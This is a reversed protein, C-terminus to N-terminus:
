SRWEPTLVRACAIDQREIGGQGLWRRQDLYSAHAKNRRDEDVVRYIPQTVVWCDVSECIAELEPVHRVLLEDRIVAGPANNIENDLFAARSREQDGGPTALLRHEMCILQPSYQDRVESSAPGCVGRRILHGKIFSDALNHSKRAVLECPRSLEPSQSVRPGM